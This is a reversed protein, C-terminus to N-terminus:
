RRATRRGSTRWAASMNTATVRAGRELLAEAANHRLVAGPYGSAAGARRARELGESAVNVVVVSAGVGSPGGAGGARRRRPVLAPRVMGYTTRATIAPAGSEAVPRVVMITATTEVASATNTQKSAPNPNAMQRNVPLFKRNLKM